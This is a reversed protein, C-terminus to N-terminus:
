IIKSRLKCALETDCFMPSSLLPHRLPLTAALFDSHYVLSALLLPLISVMSSVTSLSPFMVKVANVVDDDSAVDFHPPLASFNGSNIPLGAVIRGVFQDGAAEYRFYREMVNGLSWGCRLCISVISPGGTTGSCAYTAVVKRISHTGIEKAQVVGELRQCEAVLRSLAKGFRDKQKSGPFLNGHQLQTHCPFYIGLAVFICSRPCFPNAYCHRPDRITTGEQKTKTKYFKVGIADGELSLHDLQITETSQSRCMLNWTMTLFLHTFGGDNLLLSKDCLQLFKSYSLPRKGSDTKSGHQLENAISRNIGSFVDRMDLDFGEPLKVNNDKYFNKM